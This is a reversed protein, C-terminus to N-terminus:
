RKKKSYLAAEVKEHHEQTYWSPAYEELLEYVETLADTLLKPDPEVDSARGGSKLPPTSGRGNPSRNVHPGMITTLM